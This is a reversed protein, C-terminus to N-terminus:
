ITFNELDEKSAVAGPGLASDPLIPNEPQYSEPSFSAPAPINIESESALINEAANPVQPESKAIGGERIFGTLFKKPDDAENKLDNEFHRATELPIFKEFIDRLELESFFEISIKGKTGKKEISVRTGLAERLKEELRRIEPDLAEPHRSREFAIQRSIKEAERVNVNRYLIDEFLKKQEMPRGALMLLPRAHGETIHGEKLAQQMEAPLALLRVSNAVYERSKGIRAGIEKHTLSFEENLKKFAVARDIANLDERQVNEVLAMELKVKDASEERIMVPVERLGALKSARLRREGAILEYETVVGGTPLSREVRVVVLPQLVGYQRISEALEGLKNEDFDRRPQFPNPKIRDIEIFFISSQKTPQYQDPM